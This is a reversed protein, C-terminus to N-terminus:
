ELSSKPFQINFVSFNKQILDVCVTGLLIIGTIILPGFGGPWVLHFSYAFESGTLPYFLNIGMGQWPNMIMDTVLHGMGGIFLPLFIYKCDPEHPFFATIFLSILLVGLISHSILTFNSAINIFTVNGLEQAVIKFIREIDPAVMGIVFIWFYKRLSDKYKPMKSIGWIVIYAIGMHTLWDPM